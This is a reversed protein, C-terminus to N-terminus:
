LIYHPNHYEIVLFPIFFEPISEGTSDAYIIFINAGAMQSGQGLAIYQLDSPGSIQFFVDGSGSNATQDPINVSYCVNGSVCKSALQQAHSSTVVVM